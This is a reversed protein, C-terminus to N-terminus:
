ESVPSVDNTTEKHLAAEAPDPGIARWYQPFEVAGCNFRLEGQKSRYTKCTRRCPKFDVFVTDGPDLSSPQPKHPVVWVWYEGEVEPMGETIPTWRLARQADELEAKLSICDKRLTLIEDNAKRLQDQSLAIVALHQKNLEIQKDRQRTMEALDASVCVCNELGCRGCRTREHNEFSM